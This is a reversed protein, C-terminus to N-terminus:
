SIPCSTPPTKVARAINLKFGRQRTTCKGIVKLQRPLRVVSRMVQVQYPNSTSMLYALTLDRTAPNFRTFRDM